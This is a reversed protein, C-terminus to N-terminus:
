QNTELEAIYRTKVCNIIYLTHLMSTNNVPVLATNISILLMSPPHAACDDVSLIDDRGSVIIIDSTRQLGHRTM